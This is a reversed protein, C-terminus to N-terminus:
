NLKFLVLNEKEEIKSAGFFELERKMREYEEQTYFENKHMIIADVGWQRLKELKLPNPFNVSLYEIRAAYEPPTYSSYGNFLKRDHLTSAFLMYKTEVFQNHALGIRSFLNGMPIELIVDVDKQKNLTTYFDRTQKPIAEFRWPTSSYELTVLGILALSIVLFTKPKLSDEFRTLVLASIIGLFFYTFISFRSAVRLGQLLPHFQYIFGYIGPLSFDYTFRIQPGFSLFVSIILPILSAFLLKSYLTKRLIFMSTLFLTFPVLGWFLNREIYEPNNFVFNPIKEMALSRFGGYILNNSSTFFLDSVWPSFLQTEVLSRGIPYKSYYDLYLYGIAVSAIGFLILGLIFYKSVFVFPNIRKQWLRIFAYIPFIVSLLAGYTLTTLLQIVLFIILFFTNKSKPELLSKEFFLFILPIWQLSYYHLNDPFHGIVFPNYVFIIAALVSPLTRKTVFNVFLYMSLFSLFMSLISLINHTLIIDRFLVFIPFAMIAEMIFLESFLLSDSFGYFMPVTLIDEWSNNFIVSMYHNLTFIVHFTDGRSSEIPLTLNPIFSYLFILSFILSIGMAKIYKHKM